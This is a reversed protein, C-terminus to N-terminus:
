KRVCRRRSFGRQGLGGVIQDGGDQGFGGTLAGLRRAGVSRCRKAGGAGGRSM